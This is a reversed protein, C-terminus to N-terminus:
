VLTRSRIRRQDQLPAHAPYHWPLAAEGLDLVKIAMRKGTAADFLESRKDFEANWLTAPALERPADSREGDIELTLKDSVPIATVIHKTGNDNTQSNFAVLQTGKWIEISTHEYRYAEIGLVKVSINTTCKVKTAGGQRDIDIVDTGIKSGERVLDFVLHTKSLKAPPEARAPAQALIFLGLAACLEKRLRHKSLAKAFPVAVKEDVTFRDSLGDSLRHNWSLARL